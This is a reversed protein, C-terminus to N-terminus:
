ILKSYFLIELEINLCNNFEFISLCCIVIIVVIICMAYKCACIEQMCCFSVLSITIYSGYLM